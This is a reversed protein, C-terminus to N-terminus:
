RTDLPKTQFRAPAGLLKTTLSIVETRQSADPLFAGTGFDLSTEIAPFQPMVDPTGNLMVSLSTDHHTDTHSRKTKTTIHHSFRIALVTLCVKLDGEVALEDRHTSRTVSVAASTRGQLSMGPNVVMGLTTRDAEPGSQSPPSPARVPWLAGTFLSGM